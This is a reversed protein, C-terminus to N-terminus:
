IRLSSKLMERHTHMHALDSGNHGVRQSGMSQVRWAGRNMPNELCSSQLPNGNGEGSSRGLGLILALDGAKCSSQKGSPETPLSDEQLVPSRPQSSGKSFPFAVWELIRAQLIGHVRYDM